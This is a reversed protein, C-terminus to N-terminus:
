KYLTNYMSNDAYGEFPTYHMLNVPYGSTPSSFAFDKLYYRRTLLIVLVFLLSVRKALTKLMKAKTIDKADNM